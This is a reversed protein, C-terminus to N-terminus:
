AAEVPLFTVIQSYPFGGRTRAQAVVVNVEKGIIEELEFGEREEDTLGRGLAAEVLAQLREQLNPSTVLWLRNGHSEGEEVLDLAVRILDRRANFVSGINGEVDAVVARYIGDKLVQEKRQRVLPSM